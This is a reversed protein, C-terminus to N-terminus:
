WEGRAPIPIDDLSLPETAPQGITQHDDDKKHVLFYYAAAAAGGTVLTGIYLMPNSFASKKKLSKSQLPSSNTRSGLLSKVLEPLEKEKFETISAATTLSVTNIIQKKSVNVLSLEIITRERSRKIFGGIAANAGILNGLLILCQPDSCILASHDIALQNFLEPLMDRSFQSYASDHEILVSIKDSIAKLNKSSISSDSTLDFVALLQQEPSAGSSLYVGFLVLAFTFSFPRILKKYIM